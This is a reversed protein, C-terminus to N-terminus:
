VASGTVTGTVTTRPAGPGVSKTVAVTWPSSSLPTPMRRPRSLSVSKLGKFPVSIATGTTL